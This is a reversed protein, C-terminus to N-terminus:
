AVLVLRFGQGYVDRNGLKLLQRQYVLENSELKVGSDRLVAASVDEARVQEALLRKMSGDSQKAQVTHLDAPWFHAAGQVLILGLVGIVMVLCLAIAGANLWIWPTGTRFWAKM